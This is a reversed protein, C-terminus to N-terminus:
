SDEWDIDNVIEYKKLYEEIIINILSSMPRQERESVYQIKKKTEPTVKVGIMEIRKAM